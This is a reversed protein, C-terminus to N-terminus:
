IKLLSKILTDMRNIYKLNDSLISIIGQTDKINFECNFNVQRRQHADPVICDLRYLAIDEKFTVGFGLNIEKNQILKALSDSYDMWKKNFKQLEDANDFKFFGIINFGLKTVPTHPLKSFYEKAIDFIDSNISKQQTSLEFRNMEVIFKINDYIIQTFPPTCVYQKFPSEGPRRSVFHKENIIKEKLLWEHNIIQPNMNGIVVVNLLDQIYEAM